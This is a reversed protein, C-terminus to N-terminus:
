DVNKNNKLTMKITICTLIDINKMFIVKSLAKKLYNKERFLMNQYVYCLPFLVKLKISYIKM